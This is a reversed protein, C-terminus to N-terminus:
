SKRQKHISKVNVYNLSFKSKKTSNKRRVLITWVLAVTILFTLVAIISPFEPITPTPSPNANPRSSPKPTIIPTPTPSPSPSPTSSPPPSTVTLMQVGTNNWNNSTGNCWWEYQVSDGAKSDLSATVNIWSPNASIPAWTQNTWSGTNNTGFIYGSLGVNDLWYSNFNCISGALTTSTSIDSFTPSTQGTLTFTASTSNWNNNTDNAYIILSVSTPLSDWRLAPKYEAALSHIPRAAWECARTRRWRSCNRATTATQRSHNKAISRSERRWRRLIWRPM